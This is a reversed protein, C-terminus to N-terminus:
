KSDDEDNVDSNAAALKRAYEPFSPFQTTGVAALNGRVATRKQMQYGCKLVRRQTMSIQVELPLNGQVKHQSIRVKSVPHESYGRVIQHVRVRSYFLKGCYALGLEVRRSRNQWERKRRNRTANKLMAEACSASSFIRINFLHLLYKWEDRIFNHM